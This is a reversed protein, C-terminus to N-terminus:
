KLSVKLTKITESSASLEGDVYVFLGAGINYHTGDEDYVITIDHGRYSVNELMFYKLDGKELLPNVEVYRNNDAPRLGALGTIVIDTYSSHNYHISREYDVIWEGTIPHLDEAIWPYGNKYQSKTYTKLLDFWNGKDYSNNNKYNNLLNAAATLTQSTAFPWSPGDWRCGPRLKSMFNSDRQEATTPGYEAYFGEEDLLQAFAAAYKEDDLPLNFYWPVYGILERVNVSQGSTSITEFFGESPNWLKQMVNDRLTQAKNKYTTAASTNNSLQAIKQLAVADGYMYSNITPRVGDGGIGNEMGDRDAIQKYLGLSSVYHSKEWAQYNSDLASYYKVLEAKDGTVLYRNYYADAIPFSYLRPNAGEIFWFEQYSDLYKSDRIWRGEYFHHGAPCSISNYLGSWEVNPLFESIIYGNWEDTIKRINNRYTVWRFYYMQLLQEDDCDFYPINEEFWANFQKVHTDAPTKSALFSTIKTKSEGTKDSVAVVFRYEASEGAKLTFTKTTGGANGGFLIYRYGFKEETMGKNPSASIEFSISSNTNNVFSYCTAVVDNKTIFKKEEITIGEPITSSKESKGFLKAETIGMAKGSQPTLVLRIATTCVEDFAIKVGVNKAITDCILNKVTVWKTGNYYQVSVAKPVKTNGDDDYFHVEFHACTVSSAFDFTITENQTRIPNIYNSWRNRPEDTYSVTGDTLHTIGDKDYQSTFSASVTAESAINAFNKSSDFVSTVHSPRWTAETPMVSNGAIKISVPLGFGQSNGTALVTGNKFGWGSAYTSFLGESFAPPVCYTYPRVLLENIDITKIISVNLKSLDETETATETIESKETTIETVSETVTEAISETLTETQVASEESEDKETVDSQTETQTQLLTETEVLETETETVIETIESKETTTETVSETVTETISETLTETQVSSEESEDKETVDSQTETQTQLVTETEVLETETETVIETDIQIDTDTNLVSETQPLEETQSSISTETQVDTQIDTQTEIETVTVTELSSQIDETPINTPINTPVDTVSQTQSEIQTSTHTGTELDTVQNTPESTEKVVNNTCGFLMYLFTVVCLFLAILRNKM